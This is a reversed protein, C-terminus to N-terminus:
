DSIYVFVFSPKAFLITRFQNARFCVQKMTCFKSAATGSIYNINCQNTNKRLDFSDSSNLEFVGFNLIQWRSLSFRTKSHKHGSIEKSETLLILQPKENGVSEINQRKVSVSVNRM